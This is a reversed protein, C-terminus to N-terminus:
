IAAVPPAAASIAFLTFPLSVIAKSSRPASAMRRRVTSSKGAVTTFSWAQVTPGNGITDSVSVSVDITVNNPYNPSPTYTVTNGAINVEPDGQGYVTGEVDLALSAWDVATGDDVDFIIQASTAVGTAGDAPSGITM